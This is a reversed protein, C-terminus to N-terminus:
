KIFRLDLIDEAKFSSKIYGLSAMYDIMEQVTNSDIDTTYELREMSRLMIESTIELQKATAAVETPFVQDGASQLQRAMIGAAEEPNERAWDTAQQSAEVMRKVTEPYNNLLDTKVILVSGQMGPWIDEATLLMKFGYDEAMTAWHEPIFVADLKGAQVALMQKPPNMQQINKTLAERDLEFKDIMKQMAVDAASGTQVCGIRIGSNELDKVMNIKDPNVALGYGYKHTGVVIKIPVGANAYASIAPALCIYAVQIDGQALAAALATGTVYSEYASLNLGAEEYYGKDQAIYACAAHDNFEVAVGVPQGAEKEGACGGIGPLVLIFLAILIFLKKM